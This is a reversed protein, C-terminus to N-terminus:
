AEDYCCWASGLGKDTTRPGGGAHPPSRRYTAGTADGPTRLSRRASNCGLLLAAGPAAVQSRWRLRGGHPPHRRVGFGAGTATSV